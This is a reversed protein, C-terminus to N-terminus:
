PRRPRAGGAADPESLNANSVNKCFSVTYNNKKQYKKALAVGHRYYDDRMRYFRMYVTEYSEVGIGNRKCWEAIGEKLRGRSAILPSVETWLHLLFLRCVANAVRRKNRASLYHYREPHRRASDPIVVAIEGERPSLQPVTGEPPLSVLSGLLVNEASRAPFRVPEGFHARAWELLYREMPLYVLIERM